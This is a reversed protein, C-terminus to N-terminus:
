FPMHLVIPRPLCKFFITRREKNALWPLTGHTLHESFILADGAKM